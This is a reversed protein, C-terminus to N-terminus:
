KLTAMLPAKVTLTRAMKLVNLILIILSLFYTKTANFKPEVAIPTAIKKPEAQDGSAIRCERGNCSNYYNYDDYGSAATSNLYM